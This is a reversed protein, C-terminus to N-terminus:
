RANAKQQQLKESMAIIAGQPVGAARLALVANPELSYRGPRAHIASVVADERWGAKVMRVIGDNDLLGLSEPRLREQRLIETLCEKGDADLIHLKPKEQAYVISDGVIYRCGHHRNAVVHIIAIAPAGGTAKTDEVVFAFESGVIVLENERVTTVHSVTSSSVAAASGEPGSAAAARSTTSTTVIYSKAMESDLVKGTQWDRAKEASLAPGALMFVMIALSVASM